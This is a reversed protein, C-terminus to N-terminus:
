KWKGLEEREQQEKKEQELLAKQAKKNKIEPDLKLTWLLLAIIYLCGAFLFSSFKAMSAFFIVFMFYFPVCFLCFASLFVLTPRIGQRFATQYWEPTGALDSKEFVRKYHLESPCYWSFFLLILIYAIPFASWANFNWKDRLLFAALVNGIIAAAYYCIWFIWSKKFKM